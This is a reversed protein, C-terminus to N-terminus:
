FLKKGARFVASTRMSGVSYFLEDFSAEFLALDACHGPKLCGVENQLGLAHAAGVTYASLVEARTMKMELRALLGVTALDQSPCTGPNFDTALAVRVGADILRRAPPYKCKMYLDALPLLVATVESRALSQIEHEGVEIVHDASLAKAAIAVDTGGSLSLQDAHVVLEFGLERAAALYKAAETRSFFGGEVFIDVREALRQKKIKPLLNKVIFDLYESGSKFEPPIAHAGLFSSIVRPGKLGRLVKLCKLENKEDLAYSAKIELTTVGQEVFRQVRKQTSAQLAAPTAQRTKRMTSLIGGGAAAIEKYSVGQNRKEFEDARHGAFITHTHCEILGPVMTMGRCSVETIKKKKALERPLKRDPGVWLIKEGDSLLSANKILGLDAEQVFRGQKESAGQLTLVEEAHRFLKM